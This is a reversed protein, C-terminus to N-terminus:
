FSPFIVEGNEESAWLQERELIEGGDEEIPVSELIDGRLEELIIYSLTESQEANFLTTNLHLNAACGDADPSVLLNRVTSNEVEDTIEEFRDPLNDLIEDPDTGNMREVAVEHKLEYLLEHDEVDAEDALNDIKDFTSLLEEAIRDVVQESTIELIETVVAARDDTSKQNISTVEDVFEPSACLQEVELQSNYLLRNMSTLIERPNTQLTEFFLDVIGQGGEAQEFAFVSYDEDTQDYGHLLEESNVGSVDSILIRLFQAATNLAVEEFTVEDLEKHQEVEARIDEGLAEMFETLDWTIGRTDLVFGLKPDTSELLRHERNGDFRIEDTEEHYYTHSIELTVAELTAQANVDGLELGDETESDGVHTMETNVHPESHIRGREENARPPVSHYDNFINYQESDYYVVGLSRNDTVDNFSEAQIREPIKVSDEVRGEVSSFDMKMDGDVERVDPVFAQMEGTRSLYETKFPAYQNIIRELPIQKDSEHRNTSELTFSKGGGGFYDEPFYDIGVSEHDDALRLCQDFFFAARFMEKMHFLSGHPADTRSTVYSQVEDAARSLYHLIKRERQQREITGDQVATEINRLSSQIDQIITLDPHEGEIEGMLGQLVMLKNPVTFYADLRGELDQSDGEDILDRTESIKEQINETGDHDEITEEFQSLLDLTTDSIRDLLGNVPDDGRIVRATDEEGILTRIEEIEEELETEKEELAEDLAELGSETLLTETDPRFDAVSFVTSKTSTLFDYFDEAGLNESFLQELVDIEVQDNDWWDYRHRQYIEDFEEYFALAMDHVNDIVDNDTRLPTTIESNLFRDARYYFNSDGAYSSLFTVAYADTNKERGARGVRQVFSSLGGLPERYQTVIEIDEIDIGVELSSTSQIIEMEDLDSISTDSDAHFVGMNLPQDVFNHDTNQAVNRYDDDSDGGAFQPSEGDHYEWLRDNEDADNFQDRRQNIQSKSDIFSLIKAMEGDEGLQPPDLMGHGLLMMQQIYMSAAGGGEENSLLFFHNRYDGSDDQYDAETPQVTDFEGSDTLGFLKQGFRQPNALTASVGLFLLPDDRVSKVNRIVNAAHSGQLGDYQHVEDLVLADANQIIDYNPKLSFLELSELTTLLIDPPNNKIDEKAFVFEDMSISVDDNFIEEGNHSIYLDDEDSDSDWYDALTFVLRDNQDERVGTKSTNTVDSEDFPQGSIWTGVSFTSDYEDSEKIEYLRKLIGSLQDRLLARRPFALIATSFDSDNLVKDYVPGMFAWTKGFGTPASLNVGRHEGESRREQDLQYIRDWSRLQFELAKPGEEEGDDENDLIEIIRRAKELDYDDYESLASLDRRPIEQRTFKLSETLYDADDDDPGSVQRNHLLGRIIAEISDDGTIDSFREFESSRDAFRVSEDDQNDESSM